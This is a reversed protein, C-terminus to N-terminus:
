NKTIEKKMEEFTTINIIKKRFNLTNPININLVCKQNLSSFYLALDILACTEEDSEKNTFYVYKNIKNKQQELLDRAYKIDYTDDFDTEQHRLANIKDLDFHCRNLSLDLYGYYTLIEFLTNFEFNESKFKIGTNKFGYFSMNQLSNHYFNISYLIANKFKDMLLKNKKNSISVSFVNKYCDFLFLCDMHKRKLAETKLYEILSCTDKFSSIKKLPTNMMKRKWRKQKKESYEIANKFIKPILNLFSQIYSIFENVSLSIDYFGKRSFVVGNLCLANDKNKWNVYPSCSFNNKNNPSEFANTPHAVFLSRIYRFFCSDTKIKKFKKPISFYKNNKEINKILNQDLDYIEGLACVSQKITYLNNIFLYFEFSEQNDELPTIPNNNVYKITSIIRELSAVVKYDCKYRKNKVKLTKNLSTNNWQFVYNYFDELKNCILINQNM